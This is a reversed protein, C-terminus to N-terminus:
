YYRELKSIDQIDQWFNYEDWYKESSITDVTGMKTLCHFHILLVMGNSVKTRGSWRAMAWQAFHLLSPMEAPTVGDVSATHHDETMVVLERWKRNQALAQVVYDPRCHYLAFVAEKVFARGPYATGCKRGGWEGGKHFKHEQEEGLWCHSCLQSKNQIEGEQVGVVLPCDVMKHPGVCKFCCSTRVEDRGMSVMRANYARRLQIAAPCDNLGGAHNARPVLKRNVVFCVGCCDDLRRLTHKVLLFFRLRM